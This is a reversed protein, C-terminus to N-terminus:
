SSLQTRARVCAYVDRVIMHCAQNNRRNQLTYYVIFRSKKIIYIKCNIRLDQIHNAFLQSIYCDISHHM